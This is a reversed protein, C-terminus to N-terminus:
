YNYGLETEPTESLYDLRNDKRKEVDVMYFKGNTRRIIGWDGVKIQKKMRVFDSIVVPYINGKKSEVLATSGQVNRIIQKFPKSM